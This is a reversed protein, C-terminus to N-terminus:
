CIMECEHDPVGPPLCVEAEGEEVEVQRPVDAEVTDPSKLLM